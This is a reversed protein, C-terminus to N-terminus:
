GDCRYTTNYGLLESVQSRRHARDPGHPRVSHRLHQVGASTPRVSHQRRDIYSQIHIREQSESRYSTGRQLLASPRNRRHARGPGGRRQSHLPQRMGYSTPRVTRRRYDSSSQTHISQVGHSHRHRVGDHEHAENGRSRSRWPPHCPITPHRSGSM